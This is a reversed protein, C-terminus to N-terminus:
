GNKGELDGIPVRCNAVKTGNPGDKLAAKLSERHFQRYNNSCDGLGLVDMPERGCFEM